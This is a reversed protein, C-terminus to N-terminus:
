NVELAGLKWLYYTSNEYGKIFTRERLENKLDISTLWIGSNRCLNWIVGPNM